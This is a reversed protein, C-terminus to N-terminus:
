QNQAPPNGTRVRVKHSEAAAAATPSAAIPVTIAWCGAAGTSSGTWVTFVADCHDDGAGGPAVAALLGAFFAVASSGTPPEGPRSVEGTTAPASRAAAPVRTERISVGAAPTARRRVRPAAARAREAAARTWAAAPARPAPGARQAAGTAGSPWGRREPDSKAGEPVSPKAGPHSTARPTWRGAQV